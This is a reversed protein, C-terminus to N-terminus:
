KTRRDSNRKLEEIRKSLDLLMREIADRESADIVGGSQKAKYMAQKIKDEQDTLQKAESKTLDGSQIGEQIRQKHNRRSELLTNENPNKDDKKRPPQAIAAVTFLTTVALLFLKKM